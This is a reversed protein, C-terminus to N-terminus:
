NYGLELHRISINTPVHPILKPIPAVRVPKAIVNVSSGSVVRRSYGSQASITAFTSFRVVGFIECFNIKLRSRWQWVGYCRYLAGHDSKHSVIHDRMDGRASRM